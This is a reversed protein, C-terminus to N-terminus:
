NAPAGCQIWDAILQQQAGTIPQDLVSDDAILQPMLVGCEGFMSAVGPEYDLNCLLRSTEPSCGVVYPGGAEGDVLEYQTLALHAAAPDSKDFMFDSTVVEHCPGEGCAGPGAFIPFIDAEFSVACAPDPDCGAAGGSSTTPGPGGGGVVRSPDGYLVEEETACAALSAIVLGGGWGFLAARKSVFWRTRFRSFHILCDELFLRFRAM